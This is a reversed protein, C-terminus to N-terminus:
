PCTITDVRRQAKEIGVQLFASQHVHVDKNIFQTFNVHEGEVITITTTHTLFQVQVKQQRMKIVVHSLKM